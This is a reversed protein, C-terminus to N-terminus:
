SYNIFPSLTKYSNCKLQGREWMFEEQIHQVPNDNHPIFQKISKNILQNSVETPSQLCYQTLRNHVNRQPFNLIPKYITSGRTDGISIIYMGNCPPILSATENWIGNKQCMIGHTTKSLPWEHGLSCTYTVITFWATTTTDAVANLVDPVPTCRDGSVRSLM